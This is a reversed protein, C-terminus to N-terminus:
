IHELMIICVINNKIKMNTLMIMLKLMSTIHNQKPVAVQICDACVVSM